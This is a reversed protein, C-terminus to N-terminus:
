KAYDEVENCLTVTINQQPERLGLVDRADKLLGFAQKISGFDAGDSAMRDISGCVMLLLKGAAGSLMADLDDVLKGSKGM